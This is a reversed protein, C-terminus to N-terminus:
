VACLLPDQGDVLLPEFILKIAVHSTNNREADVVHDPQRRIFRGQAALIRHGRPQGYQRFMPNPPDLDSVNLDVVAASECVLQRVESSPKLLDSLGAILRHRATV